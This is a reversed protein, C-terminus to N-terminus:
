KSENLHKFLSRIITDRDGNVLERCVTFKEFDGSFSQYSSYYDSRTHLLNADFRAPIFISATLDIYSNCPKILFEDMLSEIYELEVQGSNLQKKKGEDKVLEPLAQGVAMASLEDTPIYVFEKVCKNINAYGMLHCHGKKIDTSKSALTTVKENVMADLKVLAESFEKKYVGLCMGAHQNLVKAVVQDVRHLCSLSDPFRQIRGDTLIYNPYLIEFSRMSCAVEPKLADGLKLFVQLPKKLGWLTMDRGLEVRKLLERAAKLNLEIDDNPVAKELRNSIRATRDGQVFLITLASVALLVFLAISNM